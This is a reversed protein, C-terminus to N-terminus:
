LKFINTNYAVIIKSQLNGYANQSIDATKMFKRIYKRRKNGLLLPNSEGPNEYVFYLLRCDKNVLEKGILSWWKKDTEALSAGCVVFLDTTQLLNTAQSNKGNGFMDNTRPKVIVDLVDENERFKVNAIQSPDNVGVIIAPDDKLHSHIHTITKVTTAYGGSNPFTSKSNGLSLIKELTETYNFTIFHIDESSRRNSKYLKLSSNDQLSIYDVSDPLCFDKLLKRAKKEDLLLTENQKAIYNKLEKNVDLIIEIYDEPRTLKESYKGLALELDAWDIDDDTKKLFGKVYGEIEKRFDKLANSVGEKPLGAYHNEYFQQYKTKLGLCVDFGNGLLFTTNM